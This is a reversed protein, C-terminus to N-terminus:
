MGKRIRPDLVDRLADGVLNIGVITISIALGPFIALHPAPWIYPSAANLMAGWEPIPPQAGLGLFSLSAATLIASGIRLTSQVIIPGMLNPFFHLFIIRLDSAGLCTVADIYPLNKLAMFQARVLRTFLPITSIGVAIMPTFTSPRMISAITLALLIGPFALILDTIAMIIRDWTSGYYGAITGMLLGGVLGLIVSVFGALISYRGGLIIRSFVDRGIEDTGLFHDWSPPSLSIGTQRYPSKTFFPGILCVILVLLIISSGVLLTTNERIFKSKLM